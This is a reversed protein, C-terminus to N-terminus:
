GVHSTHTCSSSDQTTQNERPTTIQGPQLGNPSATGTLTTLQRPAAAAVRGDAGRHRTQPPHGVHREEEPSPPCRARRATGPRGDAGAPSQSPGDPCRARAPTPRGPGDRGGQSPEAEAGDVQGCVRGASTCHVRWVCVSVSVSSSGALCLSLPHVRWVFLCLIFGGCLCVSSSGAVCVYLPHVRWVCLSSSGAVVYPSTSARRQNRFKGCVTNFGRCFPNHYFRRICM